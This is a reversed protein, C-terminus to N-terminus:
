ASTWSADALATLGTLKVLSDNEGLAAAGDNVLIYTDAGYRFAIAKNAGATTAALTAATLLSSSATISALQAASPAAKGTPTASTLQIMDTGSLFDTVEIASRGLAAATGVELDRAAVGALGAINLM